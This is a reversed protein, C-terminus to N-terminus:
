GWFKYGLYIGVFALALIGGIGTAAVLRNKWGDNWSSIVRMGTLWWGTRPPTYSSSPLERHMLDRCVHEVTDVEIGDQENLWALLASLRRIVRQNPRGNRSLSFSHMLLCVTPLSREVMWRTVRKIEALSSAEIDLIRKSHWSGFRFQSYYTVPLEWLKGVRQVTNSAGLTSVLPVSVKSGPSLSSDVLLGAKECAQLTIANASFAGARHAVIRKGTWTELLTMGKELIRVQEELSYRSMSYYRYMPLPHTHLELDHGRSHILKAAQGMIEEGYTVVEYVNLFFTGRRHQAELLDMIKGIGYAGQHHPLIGLIDAQPTGSSRTEVDISFIFATKM